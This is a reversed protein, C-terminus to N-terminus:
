TISRKTPTNFVMRTTQMTMMEKNTTQNLTINTGTENETKKATKRKNAISSLNYIEDTGGAMKLKKATPQM